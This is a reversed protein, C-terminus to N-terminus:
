TVRNRGTSWRAKTANKASAPIPPEEVSTPQPPLLLLTMATAHELDVPNGNSDTLPVVIDVGVSGVRITAM